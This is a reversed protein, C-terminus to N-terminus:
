RANGVTRLYAALVEDQHKIPPHQAFHTAIEALIQAHPKQDGDIADAWPRGPHLTDWPSRKNKRTDASDGHKGLGHLPGYSNNWLPHFLSILASEAAAEWGPVIVLRRCDFDAVKLTSRALDINRAHEAVRRTIAPGQDQFTSAGKAPQAKGVYIPTETGSLPAYPAFSGTYYLAYVGGGFTPTVLDLRERQQAVLALAAFQGFMRSDAPDFVAQPFAHLYISEDVAARFAAVAEELKKRDERSLPKGADGRLSAGAAALNDLLPQLPSRRKPTM